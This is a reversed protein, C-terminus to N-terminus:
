ARGTPGPEVYDLFAARDEPPLSNWLAVLIKKRTNRAFARRDIRALGAALYTAIEHPTACDAWIGAAHAMSDRYDRLSPMGAGLEEAAACLVAVTIDHDLSAANEIGKILAEAILTQREIKFAPSAEYEARAQAIAADPDLSQHQTM